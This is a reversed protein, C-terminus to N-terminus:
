PVWGEGANNGGTQIERCLAEALVPVTWPGGVGSTSGTPPILKEDVIQLLGADIAGLFLHRAM